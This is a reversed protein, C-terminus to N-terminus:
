DGDIVTDSLVLRRQPCLIDRNVWGFSPMIRSHAQGGDSRADDNATMRLQWLTVEPFASPAGSSAGSIGRM